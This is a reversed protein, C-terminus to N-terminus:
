LRKKLKEFRQQFRKSIIIKANLSMWIILQCITLLVNLIGLAKVINKIIGSSFDITVSNNKIQRELGIVM